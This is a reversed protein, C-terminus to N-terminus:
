LWIGLHELLIKAGIFILIAGGLIEAKEKYRLGFNNGIVVGAFSIAFTTLAIITAAPIIDINLFAFSIGVALRDISTAIAMVFLEKYDLSDGKEGEEEGDKETLAEYVMKGGIFSLLIFAIWHDVRTIYKEFRIGISWGILPMLGQFLGFAFAIISRHKYNIRRMGLGKSLSVAFADMSLGVGIFFLKIFDM